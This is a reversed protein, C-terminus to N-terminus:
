NFFKVTGRRQFMVALQAKADERSNARLSGHTHTNGEEDSASSYRYVPQGVGYYRGGKGYEHGTKNLYVRTLYFKIM